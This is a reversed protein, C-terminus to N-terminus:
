AANGGMTLASRDTDPWESRRTRGRPAPRILRSGLASDVMTM